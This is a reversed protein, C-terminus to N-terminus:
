GLINSHSTTVSKMCRPQQGALELALPGSDGKSRGSKLDPSHSAPATFERKARLRSQEFSNVSGADLFVLVMQFKRFCRTGPLNLCTIRDHQGQHTQSLM